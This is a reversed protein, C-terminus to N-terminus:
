GSVCESAKGILQIIDLQRKEEIDRIYTFMTLLVYECM